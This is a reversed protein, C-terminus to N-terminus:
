RRGAIALARRAIPRAIGDVVHAGRGRPTRGFAEISVLDRLGSSWELKYPDADGLLEFRELGHDFADQIV